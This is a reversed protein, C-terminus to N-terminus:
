KKRRQSMMFLFSCVVPIIPSFHFIGVSLFTLIAILFTWFDFVSNKIMSIVTHMVLACVVIRVGAFAHQLIELHQFASLFNAMLLIIILSPLAFGISAVFAGAVGKRKYGVFTATNIAIIGPTCQGIAYYEMVEDETVWKKNEVIERKLIPLMAYGGGFTFFGMKVFVTFLEWM